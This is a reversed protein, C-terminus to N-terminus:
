PIDVRAGTVTPAIPIGSVHNGQEDRLPTASVLSAGGSAMRVEGIYPLSGPAPFPKTALEAGHQEVRPAEANPGRDTLVLFRFAGGQRGLYYLGSGVSPVFGGPFSARFRGSYPIRFKTPVEIT